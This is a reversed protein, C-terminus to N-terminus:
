PTSMTPSRFVFAVVLKADLKKDNLNAPNISWTKVAAVAAQTLSPVDRITTVKKIQSDKDILVDLVVAGQAISNPPYVAYSVQSLTPPLYGAPNLSPLPASPPLQLQQNQPTGPNFVVHVNLTSPVAIGDLKAPTFTWSNVANTVGATLGPIDRVIHVNRAEGRASLNLSVTVLGSAINNIPHPIDSAVVIDPPVFHPAGALHTRTAALAVCVLVLIALKLTFNQRM